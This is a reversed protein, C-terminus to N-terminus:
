NSAEAEDEAAPALSALYAFVDEGGKKLKFTMKSKAKADGTVEQLYKRPDSAFQPLTEASWVLGGEGAEVMSASYKFGDYTGATRGAVGFLNPGVKGGKVIVEGEDDVVSHCAKCRKFTKEGAAVDGEAFAPAALLGLLATAIVKKM